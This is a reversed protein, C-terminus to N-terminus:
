LKYLLSTIPKWFGKLILVAIWPLLFTNPGKCNLLGHFRFRKSNQDSVQPNKMTGMSACKTCNQAFDSITGMSDSTSNAHFSGVAVKEQKGFRLADFM